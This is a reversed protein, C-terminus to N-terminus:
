SGTVRRRKAPTSGPTAPSHFGRLAKPLVEWSLLLAGLIILTDGPMRVYNLLHVLPREYFALSRAAAYDVQVVEALQLVGIPTVSLAVMVLL